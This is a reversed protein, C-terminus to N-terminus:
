FIIKVFFLVVSENQSSDITNGGLNAAGFLRRRMVSVTMDEEQLTFAVDFAVRRRERGGETIWERRASGDGDWRRFSETREYM